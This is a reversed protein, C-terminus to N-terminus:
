LHLGLSAQLIDKMELKEPLIYSINRSIGFPQVRYFLYEMLYMHSIDVYHFGIPTDSCCSLGINIKYFQNKQYWYQMGFPDLADNPSVPFFRHGELEDRTDVQVTNNVLCNGMELDEAGDGDSRCKQGMLQNHFRKLAEKSLIYAMGAM